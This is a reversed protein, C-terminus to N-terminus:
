MAFSTASHFYCRKTLLHSLEKVSAPSISPFGSYMYMYKCDFNAPKSPMIYTM